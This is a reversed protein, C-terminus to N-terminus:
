FVFCSSPLCAGVLITLGMSPWELVYVRLTCDGLCRPYGVVECKSCRRGEFISDKTAKALVRVIYNEKKVREVIYFSLVASKKRAFPCLTKLSTTARSELSIDIGWFELGQWFLHIMTSGDDDVSFV